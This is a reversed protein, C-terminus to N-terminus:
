APAPSGPPQVPRPEFGALTPVDLTGLQAGFDEAPIAPGFLYGQM